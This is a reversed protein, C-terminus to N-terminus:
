GTRSLSSGGTTAVLSEADVVLAEGIHNLAWLATMAHARFSETAPADQWGSLAASAWEYAESGPAFETARERANTMHRHLREPVDQAVAESCKIADEADFALESRLREAVHDPGFLGRLIAHEQWPWGPARMMLHQSAARGRAASEPSILGGAARYRRFMELQTAEQALRRVAETFHADLAPTNAASGHRGPRRILEAAVLEIVYALGPHESERYTDPSTFSESM